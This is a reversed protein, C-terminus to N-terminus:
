LPRAVTLVDIRQAGAKSLVKACENVTAGTTLVDDILLIHKAPNKRPTLTAFAGSINKLREEQSLKAQPPTPHIRKLCSLVPKQIHRSLRTALFSSPNFGRRLQRWWHLPVPVLADYDGWSLPFQALLFGLEKGVYFQRHYKFQHVWDLVKGEYALVSHAENFYQKKLKPLHAPTKLFHLHDYCPSCFAVGDWSPGLWGDCDLCRPPFLLSSLSKFIM